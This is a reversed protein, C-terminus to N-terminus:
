RRPGVRDLDPPVFGVAPAPSKERLRFDGKEPNVFLPDAIVSHRDQGAERWQDWSLKGFRVEGGDERRYVNHDFLANPKEWNGDLLKGEKWYVINREFTFSRHDELRTRRLQAVRGFAFVNNRVVNEKGFHQHFGGHSTRYVLNNEAVIDTSGEDFYIGWGGYRFGEIDHFINNRIVTGPQAGLTYIGGMDSLWGKGLDHVHNFAILNDRTLTRGYGWTWGTSIGTYYLDHIHNHLLQNGASQGVWLGIGQHFIRGCDRIHNDTIRNGQTQQAVDDRLDPEGVKVGGAGLDFLDCAVVTNDRCGRGLQIGYTSTHAVTCRELTCHRMGEGAVAAPVPAAAQIDLPEDRAPWWEAHAFTLGRLTVYEVFQNKEPRGQFAVLASLVPAMAEIREPKEEPHPMYYLTGTRRQLYWEGPADLLELANEVYYRAPESGDTMRRRSAKRFTALHEKEDVSAIALRVSIWLHLLVVDVDELDKYAAMDGDSFRFRGQGQNWPTDRKVDPLGAVKLFGTNPHRARPRRQGDVWLQRFYWKGDRVEPIETKWVRRGNLTTEKWGTVRRGGSFVPAAGAEATYTVPCAATGSDEPSLVLPETLLYSGGRVVVQVPQKLEGGQSRRLERVADRARQLRAFPRDKSGPDRDNGDPAVHYVVPSTPAAGVGSGSVTLLVLLGLRQTTSRM